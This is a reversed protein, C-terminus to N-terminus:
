KIFNFSNVWAVCNSIWHPIETVSFALFTPL